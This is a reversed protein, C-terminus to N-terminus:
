PAFPELRPILLMNYSYIEFFTYLMFFDFGLSIVSWEM